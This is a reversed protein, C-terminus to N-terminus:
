SAFRPPARRSPLAGSRRSVVRPAGPRVRSCAVLVLLLAALVGVLVAGSPALRRLMTLLDGASTGEANAVALHETTRHVGTSFVSSTSDTLVVTTTTTGFAVLCALMLMAALNRLTRTEVHM